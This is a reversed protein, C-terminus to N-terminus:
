NDEKYHNRKAQTSASIHVAQRHIHDLSDRFGKSESPFLLDSDNCTEHLSEPISDIVTQCNSRLKLRTMEGKNILVCLSERLSIAEEISSAGTVCDDVYIDRLIANAAQPLEQGHDKAIQQLVATALFPSCNIGFTLRKMQTDHVAADPNPRFLFRLNDSEFHSLNIVRFMKAIDASVAALHSRFRLLLDSIARYICPDPLLTDNLSNGNSTRASADFVIRFKTTSSSDKEIGHMPLYFSEAVPKKLDEEPIVSAHGMSFYEVVGAQFKDLKGKRQLPRENSILRHIAQDRSQSLTVTPLRRPLSLTYRSDSDQRQTKNFHDVAKQQDMTLAAPKTPEEEMEWFKSLGSGPNVPPLNINCIQIPRPQDFAPAVGIIHGLQTDMVLLKDVRRVPCTMACISPLLDMGLLIDTSTIVLNSGGSFRYNEKIGYCAGSKSVVLPTWCSHWQIVLLNVLYRLFLSICFLECLSM